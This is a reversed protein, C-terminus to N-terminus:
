QYSMVSIGGSYLNSAIYPIGTVPDICISPYYGQGATTPAFDATGVTTWVTSSGLTYSMVTDAGSSSTGDQFAVYLTGNYIQFSPPDYTIPTFDSNGITTWTGGICGMVNVPGDNGDMYAVYPIGNYIQLTTFLAENTTFGATNGVVSWSSSSGITYSEVTAKWSNAIDSYAIYLIGNTNDVQLSPSGIGTTGSNFGEGGLYGWGTGSNYGMVDAKQESVGSSGDIFAVYPEGQYVQVSAYKPTGGSFGASGATTWSGGTSTMVTNGYNYLDNYAMYLTGSNYLLSFYSTIAGASIDTSGVSTWGSGSNYTLVAAADISSTVDMCGVYPVGNYVQLSPHEGNFFNTSGVPKWSPVHTFTPTVTFTPTASLVTTMTFTQTASCVSTVTGTSTSTPTITITGTQSATYAPATCTDTATLRGMGVTDEPTATDKPAAATPTKKNNCGNSVIFVSLALLVYILLKKM